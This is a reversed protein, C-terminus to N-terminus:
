SRHSNRRRSKPGGSACASKGGRRRIRWPRPTAIRRKRKAPISADFHASSKSFYRSNLADGTWIMTRSRVQAHPKFICACDLTKPQPVPDAVEFAPRNEASQGLAAASLIAACPLCAFARMPIGGGTPRFSLSLVDRGWGDNAANKRQDKPRDQERIPRRFARSCIV